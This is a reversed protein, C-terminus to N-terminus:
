WNGQLALGAIRPGFTPTLRWRHLGSTSESESPAAAPPPASPASLLLYLGVGVAAAGVGITVDSIIADTKATSNDQIAASSCGTKSPCLNKASSSNSLAEIGFVAGAVISAAGIGGVTWGAVRQGHGPPSGQDAAAHKAPPPAAQVM